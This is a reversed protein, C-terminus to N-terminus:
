WMISAVQLAGIPWHDSKGAESQSMVYMHGDFSRYALKLKRDKEDLWLEMDSTAFPFGSTWYNSYCEKRADCNACWPCKNPDPDECMCSPGRIRSWALPDKPDTQYMQWLGLSDTKYGVFLEIRGDANVAVAPDNGFILSANTTLVHWESMPINPILASQNVTGNQFKHFLSGNKGLAFVHMGYNPNIVTALKLDIINFPLPGDWGNPPSRMSTRALGGSLALLRREGINDNSMRHNLMMACGLLGMGIAAAAVHSTISGVM